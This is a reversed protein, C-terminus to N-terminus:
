TLSHRGKELERIRAQLQKIYTYHEHDKLTTVCLNEPRNDTRVGNMHHVIEGKILRRGLTQEMVYRHELVYKKAGVRLNIYGGKAAVRGGIWCHNDSGFKPTAKAPRIAIGAAKLKPKIAAPTVGLRKAVQGVNLGSQYLRVADNPDAGGSCHEWRTRRKIGLRRMCASVIGQSVGFYDAIEYQTKGEAYLREVQDRHAVIKATQM